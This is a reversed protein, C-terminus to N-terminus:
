GPNSKYKKRCINNENKFNWKWFMGSKDFFLPNDDLFVEAQGRRSFVKATKYGEKTTVKQITKKTVQKLNLLDYDIQEGKFYEKPLERTGYKWHRAFLVPFRKNDSKFNLDIESCEPAIYLLYKEVEKETLERNFQVWLYDCKGGHSSKIFGIGDEKLKNYVEELYENTKQGDFEIM